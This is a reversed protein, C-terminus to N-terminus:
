EDIDENEIEHEIDYKLERIGQVYEKLNYYLKGLEYGYVIDDKESSCLERILDAVSDLSEAYHNFRRLQDKTITHGKKMIKHKIFRDVKNHM